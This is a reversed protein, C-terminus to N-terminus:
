CGVTILTIMQKVKHINVQYIWFTKMLSHLFHVCICNPWRFHFPILTYKIFM